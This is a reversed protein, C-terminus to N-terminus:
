RLTIEDSGCYKCRREGMRAMQIAWETEESKIMMIGNQLSYSDDLENDRM